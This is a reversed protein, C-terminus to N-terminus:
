PRCLTSQMYNTDVMCSTYLQYRECTYTGWMWPLITVSSSFSLISDSVGVLVLLGTELSPIM